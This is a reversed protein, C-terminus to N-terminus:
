NGGKIAAIAGEYQDIYRQHSEANGVGHEECAKAHDSGDISYDRWHSHVEIRRQLLLIVEDGTEPIRHDWESM